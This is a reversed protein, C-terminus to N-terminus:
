GGLRDRQVDAVTNSPEPVWVRGNVLATSTPHASVACPRLKLLKAFIPLKVGPEARM